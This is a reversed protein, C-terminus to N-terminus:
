QIMNIETHMELVTYIKYTAEMIKICFETSHVTDQSSRSEKRKLSQYGLGIGLSEVPHLPKLIATDVSM